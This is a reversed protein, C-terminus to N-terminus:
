TVMVNENQRIFIGPRDNEKRVVRYAGMVDKRPNRKAALSVKDDISCPWKRLLSRLNRTNNTIQPLLPRKAVSSGTIWLEYSFVCLFSDSRWLVIYISFIPM